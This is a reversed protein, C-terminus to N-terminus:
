GRGRGGDMYGHVEGVCSSLFCLFPSVRAQQMKKGNTLYERVPVCGRVEGVCSSLFCLVPETQTVLATVIRLVETNLMYDYLIVATHEIPECIGFHWVM